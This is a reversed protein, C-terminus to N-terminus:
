IMNTGSWLNEISDRKILALVIAAFSNFRSGINSTEEFHFEISKLAFIKHKQWCNRLKMWAWFKRPFQKFLKRLSSKELFNQRTCTSNIQLLSHNSRKTSLIYDFIYVNICSLLKLFITTLHKRGSKRMHWMRAMGAKIAAVLWISNRKGPQVIIGGNERYIRFHLYFLQPGIKSLLVYIEQDHMWSVSNQKDLIIEIKVLSLPNHLFIVNQICEWSCLLKKKIKNIWVLNSNYNGNELLNLVLRFEM